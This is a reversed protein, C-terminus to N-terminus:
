TTKSRISATGTSTNTTRNIDRAQVAHTRALDRVTWAYVGLHDYMWDDFVGTIVEKPHYRFDHYVSINPYGTM